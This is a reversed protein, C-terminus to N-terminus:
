AGSGPQLRASTMATIREIEQFAERHILDRPVMWSGSIAFVAPIALYAQASEATIGGSPLFHAEPFPATLAEIMGPGGLQKAPFFKVAELGFSLAAQLETATAIGPLYEVGLERARIAVAPDFGPSVVFKAGAGVARDVQDPTIVTGAGILIDTRSAMARIAGEAADTRFTIEACPIRGKVLADAVGTARDADDIVVVPVCRIMALSTLLPSSLM